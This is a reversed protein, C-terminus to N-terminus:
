GVQALRTRLIAEEHETWSRRLVARRDNYTLVRGVSTCTQQDYLRDTIFDLLVNRAECEGEEEQALLRLKTVTQPDAARLSLLSNILHKASEWQLNANRQRSISFTIDLSPSALLQAHQKLATVTDDGCDDFLQMNRLPAVQIELKKPRIDNHALLRMAENTLIVRPVIAGRLGSKTEVYTRFNQMPVGHINRQYLLIQTAKHYLFAVQEGLGDDDNLGLPQKGGMHLNVVEPLEDMRIRVMNGECVVADESYEELRVPATTFDFNRGEGAPIAAIAALMSELTIAPLGDSFTVSVDYYDITINRVPM